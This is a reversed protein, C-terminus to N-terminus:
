NVTELFLDAMRGDIRGDTGEVGDDLLRRRLVKIFGFQTTTKGEEWDPQSIRLGRPASNLETLGFMSM